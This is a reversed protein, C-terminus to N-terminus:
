SFSTPGGAVSRHRGSTGHEPPRPRGPGDKPRVCALPASTVAAVTVRPVLGVFLLAPSLGGPDTRGPSTLLPCPLSPAQAPAASPPPPGWVEPSQARAALEAADRKERVRTRSRGCRQCLLMQLLCGLAAPVAPVRWLSVTSTCWTQLSASPGRSSPALHSGLTGGAAQCLPRRPPRRPASLPPLPLLLEGVAGPRPGEKREEALPAWAPCRAGAPVGTGAIGGEEGLGGARGMRWSPLCLAPGQPCDRPSAGGPGASPGTGPAM